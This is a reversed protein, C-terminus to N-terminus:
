GAGALRLSKLRHEIGGLEEVECRVTKPNTHGQAGENSRLRKVPRHPWGNLESCGPKQARRRQRQRAGVHALASQVLSTVAAGDDLCDISLTAGASARSRVRALACCSRIQSLLVTLAASSLPTALRFHVSVIAPSSPNCSISGDAQEILRGTKLLTDIVAAARVPVSRQCFPRVINMRALESKAKSLEYPHAEVWRRARELEPGEGELPQHQLAALLEHPSIKLVLPACYPFLHAEFAARTFMGELKPLAERVAAFAAPLVGDDESSTAM